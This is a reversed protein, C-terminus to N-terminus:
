HPKPEKPQTYDVWALVGAFASLLVVVAAIMVGAEFSMLVEGQSNFGNHDSPSSPEKNRFL